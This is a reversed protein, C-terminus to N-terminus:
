HPSFGTVTVHVTSVPGLDRHDNGVLRVEIRHEGPSLQHFSLKKVTTAVVPGQDVRYHLHGQGDRLQGTPSDVLEIGAVEVEVTAWGRAAKAERDILSASISPPSALALTPLTLCTWLLVQSCLSTRIMM